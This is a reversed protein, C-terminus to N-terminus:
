EASKEHHLLNRPVQKWVKLFEKWVQECAQQVEPGKWHANWGDCWEDVVCCDDYRHAFLSKYIAEAAALRVSKLLARKETSTM